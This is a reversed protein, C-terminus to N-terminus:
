LNKTYITDSLVHIRGTIYKIPEAITQVYHFDVILVDTPQVTVAWGVQLFDSACYVGFQYYQSGDSQM